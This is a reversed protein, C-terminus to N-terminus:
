KKDLVGRIKQSLQKTNFPKQIFGDCGRDLIRTAEGTISYGSSLLVKIDPAIEKLRDYTDGGGMDPMIMDLIVLDIPLSSKANQAKSVIEIAERGSKALLVHYGMTKLMEGGVDLIMDEDDVLLVTETGRVIEGQEEREINLEKHNGGTAPLYINITTGKGKESYVDIYGGHNKIIGYVSALGLGTGRGMEKTTFFPDFIRKSTAEDMGIGTDTVSIKVYNGPEMYYPKMHDKDLTVNQTQLYLSGGGLMAHWSNVYLNLLVQEIQGQDAEVVWIDKQCELHITIEKKTRGFMESGKEILENLDTAKVEYKGGRAFGLLQKTLDAGSQVYQQINKVREYFSHSSDIDLAMLSANGQIAMLLNNFDHAIGGALTGIAEMKTMHRLQAELKRTETVDEYTVLQNKNKLMVARFNIDKITGDKCRVKFERPRLAGPKEGKLDSLWTSIVEKRYGPDPFALKFWTKGTPIDELTYGFMVVFEPNIYENTGDPNIISMGFPADMALFEFREKENKLNEEMLKRETIDRLIGRFGTAHGKSDKILSVSIEVYRKTKDKTILEWDLLKSPTGTRYVNSFVQYVKKATEEDMLQRNSMGVLEDRPYGLIKCLSNNVFAANGAIGVEYYGEELSEVITRYKEESAELQEKKVTTTALQTVMENFDEVLEGVDGSMPPKVRIDFNGQNVARTAERLRTVARSFYIGMWYALVLVLAIGLGMFGFGMTRFSKTLRNVTGMLYRTTGHSVDQAAQISRTFEDIYTTAAVGFRVGDATKEGLPAIYMFKDRIEGDPDKWRYYGHSYRGDLSAEMIAWFEPLKDALSHLDLNEIKPNKHFRNIATDSDQVAIYGTGIPQVAIERFEPDKQLEEVTMEPHAKLYLELQLAVDLAKQRIFDEAMQRLIAGSRQWQEEQGQQIARNTETPFRGAFINMLFTFIIVPLLGAILTMVILRTSFKKPLLRSLKM